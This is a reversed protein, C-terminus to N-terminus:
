KSTNCYEAIRANRKQLFEMEANIYKFYNDVDKPTPDGYFVNPTDIWFIVKEYDESVCDQLFFFDVYGKFDVFLDFFEKNVQERFCISLPSEEGKYYRRICEMTLDWRDSIIPERGRLANISFSLTPFLIEGGITYAKRLFNEMYGRYDGLAAYVEGILKKKRRYRFSAIISDSSMEIGKWKLYFQSRGDELEMVEGNPLPKSWLLQHYKRMMPSRRDPDYCSGGMGDNIEWFEDWYHPTDSTFDFSIDIDKLEM